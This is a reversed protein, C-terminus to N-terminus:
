GGVARGSREEALHELLEGLEHKWGGVNDQRDEPREFGSECLKLTTGGDDRPVLQWEVLTSPSEDLPTDTERAWRWAVRRPPEYREVRVASRGHKKWGFWGEAGARAELEATDGFWRAIEDAETLARWVREPASRLELTREIADITETKTTM